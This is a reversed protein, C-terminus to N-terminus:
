MILFSLKTPENAEQQPQRYTVPLRAQSITPEMKRHLCSPCSQAADPQISECLWNMFTYRMKCYQMVKRRTHQQQISPALGTSQHLYFPISYPLLSSHLSPHISTFPYQTIFINELFRSLSTIPFTILFNYLSLPFSLPFAKLFVSKTCYIKM